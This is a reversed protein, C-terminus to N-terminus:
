SILGALSMELNRRATGEWLRQGRRTAYITPRSLFARLVKARGTRYAAGDITAFERRVQREYAAFAPGEAGLISLDADLVICAEESDVACPHEHRTAEVLVQARQLLCDSM